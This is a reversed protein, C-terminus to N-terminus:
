SKASGKIRFSDFTTLVRQLMTAGSIFLGVYTFASHFPDQQNSLLFVILAIVIIILPMKFNNWRGEAAMNKEIILAESSKIQTLIFNRFSENLLTIKGDTLDSTLVGKEHLSKIVFINKTNVLGDEALDYVVYQEQKTLSNWISQYYLYAYTQISELIEDEKQSAMLGHNNEIENKILPLFNGFRCERMLIAEAYTTADQISKQTVSSDIKYEYYNYFNGLLKAWRDIDQSIQKLEKEDTHSGFSSYSNLFSIPDVDSVIIVKRKGDRSRKEAMLREIMNLKVRNTNSNKFDYEFHTILVSDIESLQRHKLKLLRDIMEDTIIEDPKCNDTLTFLDVILSNETSKFIEEVIELKGCGPIGNVFIHRYNEADNILSELQKKGIDATVDYTNFFKNIVFNIVYYILILIILFTLIFYFVNTVLFRPNSIQFVSSSIKVRFNDNPKGSNLLAAHLTLLPTSDWQYKAIPKNDSKIIKLSLINESQNNLVPKLQAIINDYLRSRVTTSDPLKIGRLIGSDRTIRYFTYLHSEGGSYNRKVNPENIYLSDLNHKGQKYHNALYLQADKTQRLNTENYSYIFMVSSPLACTLALWTIFICSARVVHPSSGKIYASRNHGEQLDKRRTMRGSILQVGFHILIAITAYLILITDALVTNSVIPWGNNVIFTILLLLSICILVWFIRYRKLTKHDKKGPAAINFQWFTQICLVFINLIFIEYLLLSFDSIHSSNQFVVSVIIINLLLLFLNFSISKAYLHNKSPTPWLWDVQFHFIKLRNRRDKLIDVLLLIIIILVFLGLMSVVTFSLSQEMRLDRGTQDAYSALYLNMDGIPEIIFSRAKGKYNVQFFNNESESHIASTFSTSDDCERFLNENNNKLTDSSFLVDGNAAIINFGFGEPIFPNTICPTIAVCSVADIKSGGKKSIITRYIGDRWSIVPEVALDVFEGIKKQYHYDPQNKIIRIFYNRTKINAGVLNASDAWAHIQNGTSDAWYYRFVNTNFEKKFFESYGITDQHEGSKLHVITVRSNKKDFSINASDCWPNKSIFSDASILNKSGRDIDAIFEQKVKEAISDCELMTNNQWQFSDAKWFTITITIVTVFIMLSGISQILDWSSLRDVENMMLVKLFPMSLLFLIILFLVLILTNDSVRRTEYGYEKASVLGCLAYATGGFLTIPLIFAKYNEGGINVEKILSSSFPAFDDALLSDISAKTGKMNVIANEIIKEKDSKLQSVRISFLSSSNYVIRNSTFVFCTSFNESRLNSFFDDRDWSVFCGTDNDRGKAKYFSDIRVKFSDYSYPSFKSPFDPTPTVVILSDKTGKVNKIKREKANIVVLKRTSYKDVDGTDKSYNVSVTKAWNVIADWKNNLTKNMQILERFKSANVESEKEPIYVKLYSYLAVGVFILTLITFTNKKVYASFNKLM